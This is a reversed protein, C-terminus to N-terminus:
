KHKRFLVDVKKCCEFDFILNKISTQFGVNLLEYLDEYTDLTRFLDVYDSIRYGTQLEDLVDNIRLSVIEVDPYSCPVRKGNVKEKKLGKYVEFFDRCSCLDEQPNPFVPFTKTEGFVARALVGVM